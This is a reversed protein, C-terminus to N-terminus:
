RRDRNVKRAADTPRQTRQGQAQRAQALRQARAQAAIATRRARDRQLTLTRTQARAEALARTAAARQARLAAQDSTAARLSLGLWGTALLLAGCAIAAVLGGRPRAALRDAPPRPNGDASAPRPDDLAVVLGRGRGGQGRHRSIPPVPAHDDAATFRNQSAADNSSAAPTIPAMLM